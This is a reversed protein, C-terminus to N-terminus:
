TEGDALAARAADLVSSPEGVAVCNKEYVAVMLSLAERLTKNSAELRECKTRLEIAKAIGERMDNM